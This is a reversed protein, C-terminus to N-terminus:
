FVASGKSSSALPIAQLRESRADCDTLADNGLERPGPSLRHPTGVFLPAGIPPSPRRWGENDSVADAVQEYRIACASSSRALDASDVWELM